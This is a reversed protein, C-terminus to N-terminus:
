GGVLSDLARPRPHALVARRLRRRRESARRVRARLLEAPAEVVVVRVRAWLADRILLQHRRVGDPLAEELQGRVTLLGRQALPELLDPAGAAAVSLIGACPLQVAAPRPWPARTM